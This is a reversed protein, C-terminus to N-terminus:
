TRSEETLLVDQLTKCMIVHLGVRNNITKRWNLQVFLKNKNIWNGPSLSNETKNKRIKKKTIGFLVEHFMRSYVDQHVLCWMLSSFQQPSIM